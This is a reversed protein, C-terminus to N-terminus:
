QKGKGGEGGGGLWFFLILSELVGLESDLSGTGM